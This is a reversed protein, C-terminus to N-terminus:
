RLCLTLIIVHKCREYQGPEPRKSRGPLRLWIGDAALEISVENLDSQFGLSPMIGIWSNSVENRGIQVRLSETPSYHWEM